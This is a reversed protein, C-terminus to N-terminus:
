AVFVDRGAPLKRIVMLRQTFVLQWLVKEFMVEGQGSVSARVEAASLPREDPFRWIGLAECVARAAEYLWTPAPASILALGGPRLLRLHAQIAKSTGAPEFQEILGVSFVADAEVELDLATVDQHHLRLRPDGAARGRLLQLGYESADVVHYADPHLVRCVDDLFCSNGGGLEVVTRVKGGGYRRLASVLERATYRRAIRATFPTQKYYREWDTTYSTRGRRFVYERQLVFNVPFLISEAIMKAASVPWAISTRILAMLAYSAAGSAAVLLLYRVLLRSHREHSLFVARRAAPYNFLVAGARGAVQSPLISGSALFAALFVVNDLVSTALSLLTFRLLVFWVRMSDTLPNFHSSPNGAEYVTRIDLEEIACGHHKAAILMDLEFEYGSSGIELLLALLPRPIGRLGTQTDKLNHGVLWRVLQRTALNGIRSRWPVDRGFQRSGLVLRGPAEAMRRAVREIDAPDHQGDADATVVGGVDPYMSLVHRIGTKLAAGKGLNESHRLVDVGAVRGCVSIAEDYSAGSGDDVVVIRAFRMESLSVVLQALSQRPRFAPIVVALAM